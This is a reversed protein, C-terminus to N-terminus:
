HLYDQIKEYDKFLGKIKGINIIEKFVEPAQEEIAKIKDPFNDYPGTVEQYKDCLLKNKKQTIWDTETTRSVSQPTRPSNFNLSVTNGMITIENDLYGVKKLGKVFVNCMVEDKLTISLDMTLEWPESFEGLKFGTLWWHKDERTFLIKGNKKLTVAMKLRESDRACNYFTGEFVGPINLDPGTTTYVGIECGTTLDYQGKWFEILWRKGDYEFYIPECDIIMGLPAALEDYLRCYGMKRQWAYMRSYFIDQKPDYSYGATEIAKDLENNGTITTTATGGFMGKLTAIGSSIWQPFNLYIKSVYISAIIFIFVLFIIIWTYSNTWQFNQMQGVTLSINNKRTIISILVSICEDFTSFM